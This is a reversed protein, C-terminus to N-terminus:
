CLLVLIDIDSYCSFYINFQFLLFYFTRFFLQFLSMNSQHLSSTFLIFFDSFFFCNLFVTSKFARLKKEGPEMPCQPTFPRKLELLKWWTYCHTSPAEPRDYPNLVRTAYQVNAAAFRFNYDSWRPPVYVDPDMVWARLVANHSLVTVPNWPSPRYALSRPLKLVVAKREYQNPSHQTCNWMESFM